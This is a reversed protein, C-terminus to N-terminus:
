AKGSSLASANGYTTDTFEANAPVDSYVTHGNVTASNGGNAPLSTPTDSLDNYSGSFAVTKLDSFFKKVKSFLTPLNDGSNLSQRSAAEDFQVVIEADMQRDAM